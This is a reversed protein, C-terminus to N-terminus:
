SLTNAALLRPAMVPGAGPLSQVIGWHPRERSIKQIVEDFKKISTTLQNPLGVLATV